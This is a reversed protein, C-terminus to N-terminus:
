QAVEPLKAVLADIRAKAEVVREALARNRTQATALERRLAENAARLARVHAILSQVRRDLAELEAQAGSVGETEPFLSAMCPSYTTSAVSTLPASDLM